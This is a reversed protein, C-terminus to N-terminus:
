PRRGLVIPQYFGSAEPAIVAVDGWGAQEAAATLEALTWARFTSKSHAVTWAPGSLLFLESDYVPEDERWTWSQVYVHPVGEREFRSPVTGRPRENLISRYDRVSFALAGGRRAASLMSGLAESLAPEDHLHAVANDMSLVADFADRWPLQRMDAVRTEIQAGRRAAEQQARGVSASSIDSATVAFGRSALGLAQTGIGCSCDLVTAPSTVGCSYLLSTFTGAQREISADWDAFVLDYHSALEDYFDATTMGWGVKLLGACEGLALAGM